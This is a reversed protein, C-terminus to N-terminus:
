TLIQPQTKCEPQCLWISLEVLMTCLNRVELHALKAAEYLKNYAEATDERLTTRTFGGRNQFRDAPCRVWKLKKNTDKIEEEPPNLDLHLEIKPSGLSRNLMGATSPGVKGDVYIKSKKQFAEVADETMSGFHGDIPGPHYGLYALAEQLKKILDGKAIKGSRRLIM